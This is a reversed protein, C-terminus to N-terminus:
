QRQAASKARTAAFESGASWQPWVGAHSVRWGVVHLLDVDQAAGRLDWKADWTDCTKHYCGMYADLWAQGAAAGGAKLDPAGGLAMLLLSPVGRRVVSFHDARYFLGRETFTEPTVTRGQAAAAKALDADLTSNGKGVLVVNKAPGATQLIDMTFNAATRALPYVPHTAYYESGLLGREEATWIAFVLTRDPKPGARFERALELVNLTGQINADVYSQPADYSYPIAILAGLHFVVDIDKFAKRMSDRDRIDGTLVEIDSLLPSTELWGRHGTSTYRVLARTKAGSEVLRETLHSGIFGGAGTVLVKSRSWDIM